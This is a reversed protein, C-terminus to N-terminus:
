ESTTPGSSTSDDPPSGSSTTATLFSHLRSAMRMLLADLAESTLRSLPYTSGAKVLAEVWADVEEATMESVIPGLERQTRLYTQLLVGIEEQPLGKTGAENGRIAEPSPFFPLNGPEWQDEGTQNARWVARFLLQVTSENAYIDDYAKSDEGRQPKRKLLDVAYKEASAAASMLEAQSLVRMTVKGVMKGTIPDRRPYDVVRQPRPMESLQVWLADPPIDNPPGPM